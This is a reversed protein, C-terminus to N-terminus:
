NIKFNATMDETLRFFVVWLNVFLYWFDDQFSLPNKMWIIFIYRAIVIVDLFLIAQMYVLGRM